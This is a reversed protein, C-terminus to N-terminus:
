AFAAPGRCAAAAAAVAESLADGVVDPGWEGLRLNGILTGM